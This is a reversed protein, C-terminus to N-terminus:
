SIRWVASFPFVTKRTGPSGKIAVVCIVKRMSASFFPMFVRMIWPMDIIDAM